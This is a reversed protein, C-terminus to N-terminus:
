YDKNLNESQTITNELINKIERLCAACLCDNYNQNLYEKERENLIIKSCQCLSISGAKCEFTSHCRPCYKIEHLSM